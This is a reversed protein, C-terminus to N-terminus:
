GLLLTVLLNWAMHLLIPVFINKSKIFTWSFIVSLVLVILFEGSLLASLLIGNYYWIPFHILLFLVATLLVAYRPKMKKLLANLFFGRFVVEETIGVFLVAGVLSAIRFDGIELKGNTIFAVIVNYAIFGLLVLSYKIWKVKTTLMERWSLLVDNKYYWVGVAAPLTWVILKTITECVAVGWEGLSASMIPYLWLERVCWVALFAVYFLIIM